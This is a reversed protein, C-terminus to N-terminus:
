DIRMYSTITSRYESSSSLIRDLRSHSPAQWVMFAGSEVATEETARMLLGGVGKTRVTPKVYIADNMLQLQLRNHMHEALVSCTYGVIEDDYEVVWIVLREQDELVEYREWFPDLNLCGADRAVECFHDVMLSGVGERRLDSLEGLRLILEDTVM